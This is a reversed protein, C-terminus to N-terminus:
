GLRDGVTAAAVPENPPDPSVIVARGVQPHAVMGLAMVTGSLALAAEDGFGFHRLTVSAGIGAVLWLGIITTGSAPPLPNHFM